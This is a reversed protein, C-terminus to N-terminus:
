YKSIFYITSTSDCVMQLTREHSSRRIPGESSHKRSHNPYTWSPLSFDWFCTSALCSIFPRLLSYTQKKYLWEGMSSDRFSRRFLHHPFLLFEFLSRNQDERHFVFDVHVMANWAHHYGLQHTQNRENELLRCPLFFSPFSRFAFHGLPLLTTRRTRRRTNSVLSSSLHHIRSHNRSTWHCFAIHVMFFRNVLHYVSFSQNKWLFSFGQISKIYFLRWISRWDPTIRSTRKDFHFTRYISWFAHLEAHKQAHM